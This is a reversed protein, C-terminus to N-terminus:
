ALNVGEDQKAIQKARLIKVAERGIFRDRLEEQVLTHVFSKLTDRLEPLRAVSLEPKYSDM